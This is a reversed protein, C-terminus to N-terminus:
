YILEGVTKLSNLSVCFKERKSRRKPITTCVTPLLTVTVFRVLGPYLLWPPSPVTMRTPVPPLRRYSTRNVVMPPESFPISGERTRAAVSRRVREAQLVWVARRKALRSALTTPVQWRVGGGGGGGGGGSGGGGGGCTCCSPPVPAAPAAPAAPSAPV